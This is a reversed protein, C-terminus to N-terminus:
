DEFLDELTDGQEEFQPMSDVAMEARLHSGYFKEIMETSTRCNKAILHIPWTKGLLARMIATHRLSYLTRAEDNETIKLGAKELVYNFQRMMTAMAYNRNKYQPFFVYDEPDGKIREYISVAAKTSIVPAPATKGKAMIRLYTATLTRRITIHKHQLVKVDQPRLFTNLMFNTLEKLEETVLVGRVRVKDAIARRIVKQLAEYQTDDLWSRPNDVATITPFVPLNELVEMKHGHKLIKSLQTFHKKITASSVQREQLHEVYQQIRNFNIDKLRDRRFFPSLDKELIYEADSVITPAKEGRAVRGRDEEIMAKAVREFDSSQTLPQNTAMKVLIEKYFDKAASIANAHNETKLSRVIRQNNFSGRVYWSSSAPIRYIKLHEPYGPVSELTEPIPNSQHQAM